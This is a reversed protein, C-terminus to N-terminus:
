DLPRIAPIIDTWGALESVLLIVLLWVLADAGGAPQQEIRQHLELVQADTMAAVRQIALAEEVGGLVLQERIWDRKAGIDGLDLQALDSQLQATGVMAAQGPLSLGLVALAVLLCQLIKNLRM